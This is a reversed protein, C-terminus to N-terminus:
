KENKKIEALEENSPHRGWWIAKDVISPLFRFGGFNAKQGLANCRYYTRDCKQIGPAGYGCEYYGFETWACSPSQKRLTNKNWQYLENTVNMAITQEDVNWSDITGQFLIVRHELGEGIPMHDDDLLVLSLTVPSGQVNLSSIFIESYVQDLDLINVSIQDVIQKLSLSLDDINFSVPEYVEEFTSVDLKMVSARKVTCDIGVNTNLYFTTNGKCQGYVIFNTEEDFTTVSGGSSGLIAKIEDGTGLSNIKVEVRYLSDLTLISQTLNGGASGSHDAQLYGSPSDWGTGWTWPSTSEDGYKFLGDSLLETEIIDNSPWLIQDLRCYEVVGVFTSNAKFGVDYDTDYPDNLYQSYTGNATINVGYTGAVVANVTGATINTFKYRIRYLDNLDNGDLIDKFLLETDASQTGDCYFAPIFKISEVIGAGYRIGIQLRHQADEMELIFRYTGDATITKGYGIWIFIEAGSELGSVVAELYYYNHQIGPNTSGDTDYQVWDYDSICLSGDNSLYGNVDVEWATPAYTVFDWSSFSSPLPIFECHYWGTGAEWNSDSGNEVFRPDDIIPKHNKIPIDCDTIRYHTDDIKMDLCLYPKFKTDGLKSLITSNINRM